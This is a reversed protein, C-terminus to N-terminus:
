APTALRSRGARPLSTGRVAPGAAALALRALQEAGERSSAVVLFRKVHCFQADPVGTVAVLDAGERGAWEAPLDRRNEFSGLERPVAEVRFGQSGTPEDGGDPFGSGSEEEKEGAGAAEADGTGEDHM